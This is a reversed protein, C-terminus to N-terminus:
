NFVFPSAAFKDRLSQKLLERKVTTEDALDVVRGDIVSNYAKQEPLGNEVFRKTINNGLVAQKYYSAIGAAASNLDGGKAYEVAKAFLTNDPIVATPNAEVMPMVTSAIFPNSKVSNSSVITQTPPASYINPFGDKVQGLMSKATETAVTNVHETFAAPDKLTALNKGKETSWMQALFKATDNGAVNTGPSAYVRAADGANKGISIGTVSGGNLNVLQGTNLMDQYVPDSRRSAFERKFASLDPVTYKGTARAGANRDDMMAQLTAQDDAKQALKEERDQQAWARMQSQESAAKKALALREQENSAALANYALSAQQSSLSALEKIGTIKIGAAQRKLEDAAIQANYAIENGKAEALEASTSQKTRDISIAADNTAKTLENLNAEATNQRDVFYNHATIEAPLEFQAAIFGLPDSLLTKSQKEMISTKAAYAKDANSQIEQAWYNSRSAQDSWNGSLAVRAAAKEKDANASFLETQKSITQQAKGRLAIQALEDETISEQADMQATVSIAANTNAANAKGVSLMYDVIPNSTIGTAM